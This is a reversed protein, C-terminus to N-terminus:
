AHFKYRRPYLIHLMGCIFTLAVRESSCPATLPDPHHANMLVSISPPSTVIRCMFPLSRNFGVLGTFVVGPFEALIHLRTLPPDDLAEPFVFFFERGLALRFYGFRFLFLTALVAKHAVHKVPPADRLSACGHRVWNLAPLRRKHPAQCNLFIPVITRVDCRM